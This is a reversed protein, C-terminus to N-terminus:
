SSLLDLDLPLDIMEQTEGKPRKHPAHSLSPALATMVIPDGGINVQGAQHLFIVRCDFFPSTQLVLVGTDLSSDGKSKLLCIRPEM